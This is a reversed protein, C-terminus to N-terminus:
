VYKRKKEKVLHFFPFVFFCRTSYIGDKRKENESDMISFLFIYILSGKGKEQNMFLFPLYFYSGKYMSENREIRLTFIFFFFFFYGTYATKQKKRKTDNLPFAFISDFLGKNTNCDTIIPFCLHSKYGGTTNTKQEEYLVYVFAFICEHSGHKRKRTTLCYNSFPFARWDIHGKGCLSVTILFHFLGGCSFENGINLKRM